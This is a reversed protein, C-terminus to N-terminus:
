RGTWEPPRKECWAKYFEGHDDGMLLLAQALTEGELASHFDMDMERQLMRKTVAIGRAPGDALRRAHETAVALLDDPAVVRNYLGIEAARAADVFEGEMLLESAHGMGVIRPLLWAAGMDAGSLGVKTFLYAIKATNSAVRVDAAAAIVAAEAVMAVDTERLYIVALRPRLEFNIRAKTDFVQQGGSEISRDIFGNRNEFANLFTESGDEFRAVFAALAAGVYAPDYLRDSSM